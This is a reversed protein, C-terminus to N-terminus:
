RQFLTIGAIGAAGAAVCDGINEEKVGGLALVPIRVVASAEALKALGQPQGYRAKSATHFVPGFVVFDAGEREALGVEDLTHCSVGITFGQPAIRRVERPPIAGSPLHAGHAGCALAVDARDNVLVRAGTTLAGRVLAALERAPLDKERIQVWDVQAANRRILALLADTGGAAQRDTIYYRIV